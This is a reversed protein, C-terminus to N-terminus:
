KITVKGYNQKQAFRKLAEEVTGATKQVLPKAWTLTNAATEEVLPAAKKAINGTTGGVMGMAMVQQNQKDVDEQSPYNGSFYKQNATDIDMGNMLASRKQDKLQEAPIRDMAGGQYSPFQDRQQDSTQVEGMSPQKVGGMLELAKQRARTLLDPNDIDDAM